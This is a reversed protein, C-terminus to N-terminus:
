RVYKFWTKRIESAMEPVTYSFKRCLLQHLLFLGTGTVDYDQPATDVDVYTNFIFWSIDMIQPAPFSELWKVICSRIDASIFSYPVDLYTLM